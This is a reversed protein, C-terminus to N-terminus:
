RKGVNSISTKHAIIENPNNQGSLKSSIDSLSAKVSANEDKSKNIEEAIARVEHDDSELPNYTLEYRSYADLLSLMDQTVEIKMYAFLNIVESM